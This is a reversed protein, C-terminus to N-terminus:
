ALTYHDVADEDLEIGLGPTQPVLARGNEVHIPKAALETMMPSPLQPRAQGPAHSFDRPQGGRVRPTIPYECFDAESMSAVLHISAAFNVMTGWNHPVVPVGWLRGLEAIRRGETLGGVWSLDPQLLDVANKQLLDRFAFATMEAEGAAITLPTGANLRALNELDDTTSLPEEWWYIDAGSAEISRAMKLAQSLSGPRGLDLMLEVRDGAAHRLDQLMKQDQGPRRGFDAWGYYKIGCYGEAAYRETEELAQDFDEGDIYVSSVYVKVQDRFAGGLLQHVPLGLSKGIGDYVAMDIGSIAHVALGRRDYLRRCVDYLSQWIRNSDLLNQGVVAEKLSHDILDRAAFAGRGDRDPVFCEGLGEVGDSSIVRVLVWGGNPYEYSRLVQTRIEAIQM